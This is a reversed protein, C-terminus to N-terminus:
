NSTVSAPPLIRYGLALTARLMEIAAQRDTEKAAEDLQHYPVLLPHTRGSGSLAMGWKWGQELRLKAWVNHNNEALKETLKLLDDSLEVSSTDIPRPDYTPM